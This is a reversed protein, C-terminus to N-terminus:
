VERRRRLRCTAASLGLAGLLVAGPVPVRQVTLTSTEIEAGWASEISVQAPLSTDFWSPDLAFVTTTLPQDPNGAGPYYNFNTYYGMDNLYGLDHWIGGTDQISVMDQEGDMDNGRGDVDDAVITLTASLIPASSGDYTHTFAITGGVSYQYVDLPEEYMDAVASGATLLVVLAAFTAITKTM